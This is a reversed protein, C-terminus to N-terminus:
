TGAGCELIVIDGGEISSTIRAQERCRQITAEWLDPFASRLYQDFTYAVHFRGLRREAETFATADPLTPLGLKLYSNLPLELTTGITFVAGKESLAAIAAAASTYDQKPLKYNRVLAPSGALAGAVCILSFLLLHARGLGLLRMLAGSLLWLGQVAALLFFGAQFFFFRPFIPRGLASSALVMAPITLAITAALFPEHRLFHIGGALLVLCALAFPLPGGFAQTLERVAVLVAWGPTAVDGAKTGTQQRAGDLFFGVVDGLMPAYLLVTLAAAGAFAAAAPGLRRWVTGRDGTVALYVLASAGHVLGLIVMTLHTYAALALCLAYATYSARVALGRVLANWLLHTCVLAFFLLMTYGRANQSFWVPHYSVALFLASAIAVPWPAIARAFLYLAPVSLVGFVVAPLRVSWDSTGFAIMCLKALLSYFPHDNNSPYSTVVDILPQQLSYVVTAIEDYWLPSNLGVARLGAALLTILAIPWLPDRGLSRVQATM